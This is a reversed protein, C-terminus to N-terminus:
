REARRRLRQAQLIGFGGLLLAMITLGTSGVLPAAAAPGAAACAEVSGCSANVQDFSCSANVQMCFEYAEICTEETGGCLTAGGSCECVCCLSSNTGASVPASGLLILLLLAATRRM